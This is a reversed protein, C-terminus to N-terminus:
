IGLGGGMDGGGLGGMDEPNQEPPGYLYPVFVSNQALEERKANRIKKLRNLSRLTIVARRKQGIKPLDKDEQRDYPEDMGEMLVKKCEEFIVNEM